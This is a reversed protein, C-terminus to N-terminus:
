LLVNILSIARKYDPRFDLGDRVSQVHYTATSHNIGIYEAAKYNLYGFRNVAIYCFLRRADVFPMKRCVSLVDERAVDTVDCVVRLISDLTPVKETPIAIM